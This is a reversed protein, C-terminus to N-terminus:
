QKSTATAEKEFSPLIAKFFANKILEVITQLTNTKIEEVAGSFNTKTAVKQTPENKLLNAVGGVLMEYVQHFIGRDRDTRKDYVKMNKFFPKIYGTVQNNNVHVETVLSFFGSSVDFDGYARLFNNLLTLQTDEIKLYLDLDPGKIEPRFNGTATMKGNGMFKAKLQSQAPGQYFHNSFNKLVFDIESLFLRYPRTVANNAFGFTSSKLNFQNINILVGPKNSLELATDKVAAAHKKEKAASTKTHLYNINMGEILLNDLYAMKLTSSYQFNGSSWLEGKSITFNARAIVPSFYDIPIKQFIFNANLSPLPEALFNANGNISGHGTNFIETKVSFSSPHVNKPSYVNRINTAHFHLHNLTLPKKPDQDIYIINADKVEINNIKLPYIDLVAQQWGREKLPVANVIESRLQQLNINIQPRDLMIEAVIKGSFVARWHISAKIVPFFALPPNPHADQLVTLDRMTLSFGILQIHLKSLKVTYGKLDRNMNNETMKRLPEDLFFSATYIIFLLALVIGVGWRLIKSSLLKTIWSNEKVDKM